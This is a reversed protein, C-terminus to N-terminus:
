RIEMSCLESDKSSHNVESFVSSERQQSGFLDLESSGLSKESNDNSMELGCLRSFSWELSSKESSIEDRGFSESTYHSDFVDRGGSKSLLCQPRDLMYQM